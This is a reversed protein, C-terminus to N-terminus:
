TPPARGKHLLTARDWGAHMAGPLSGVSGCEFSALLVRILLIARRIIARAAIVARVATPQPSSSPSPSGMSAPLSMFVGTSMPSHTGVVQAASLALQPMISSPQPVIISQPVQVSGSVQPPPPVGFTQPSPSHVGVVVQSSSPASHPMISSPQETTAHVSVQSASVCIHLSSFRQTSAAHTGVLSSSTVQSAQVSPSSLSQLSSVSRASSAPQATQGGGPSAAKAVASSLSASQPSPMSLSQSPKMSQTSKSQRSLAIVTQGASSVSASQLSPMSLSPSPRM